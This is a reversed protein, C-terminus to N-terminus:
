LKGFSIYSYVFKHGCNFCKDSCNILPNYTSCRYCMPLLEEPDNPLRARSAVTLIEVQEQFKPPVRLNQIRDFLSKALKNAGLVRAQKAFTYLVTSGFTLSYVYKIKKCIYDQENYNILLICYLFEM